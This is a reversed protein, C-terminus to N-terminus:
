KRQRATASEVIRQRLLCGLWPSAREIWWFLRAYFPFVIVARNRSIGRLIARAVTEASLAPTLPSLHAGHTMPTEINGPCAVHIKVGQIRAEERFALSLGLVASKSTVYPLHFPAYCLASMSAINVISGFHQQKMVSYAAMTGAVVGGLNVELIRDWPLDEAPGRSVIGACNVMLDLRGHESATRTILEWVARKDSVDLRASTASHGNVTLEQQLRSAGSLDVDAIVVHAGDGALQRCLAAGLGSAGGTIIASRM